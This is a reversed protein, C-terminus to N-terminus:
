PADALEPSRRRPCPRAARSGRTGTPIPHKSGAACSCGCCGSGPSRRCRWWATARSRPGSGCPPTAATASRSGRPGASPSSRTSRRATSRSGGATPARRPCCSRATVPRGHRVVAPSRGRGAAGRRRRVPGRHAGVRRRRETPIEVSSPLESRMPPAAQNRYVTLGAPADLPELDLQGALTASLSAPVPIPEDRSRLRAGAARDGGRLPHGDARPAARPPGDPRLPRPRARRRRPRHAGEDRVWGCTRSRPRATTPPPTTSTRTSRGGTSPCPRPTVSGCSASRGGRRERRRHVRPRPRPRGLADVLARRLVAGIVPVVCVVVAVAALGSAIQRWGFRYGPLDVEFAVVGMATALALGAAAPVLLVDVPPLPVDLTGRQALWALGFSAIAVTWGRVAWTHREARAILLPLTAAVLFSWGFPAGGLPGTEFRLLAALDANGSGNSGGTFSELTRGPLLFDLTWPLHLAVAIAAGVVSAGLVRLGGRPNVAIM